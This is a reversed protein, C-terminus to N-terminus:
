AYLVTLKIPEWECSSMITTIDSECNLIDTYIMCQLFDHIQM